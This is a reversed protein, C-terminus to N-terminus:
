ANFSAIDGFFPNVCCVTDVGSAQTMGAYPEAGGRYDMTHRQHCTCATGSVCATM